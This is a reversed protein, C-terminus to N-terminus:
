RTDEEILCTSESWAAVISRLQCNRSVKPGPSSCLSSGSAAMQKNM